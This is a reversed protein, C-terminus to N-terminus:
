SRRTPSLSSLSSDMKMDARDYAELAAQRLHAIKDRVETFMGKWEEFEQRAEVNEMISDISSAEIGIIANMMEFRYHLIQLSKIAAHIWKMSEVFAVADWGTEAAAKYKEVALRSLGSIMFMGGLVWINAHYELPTPFGSLRDEETLHDLEMYDGCYLYAFVGVITQYPYM